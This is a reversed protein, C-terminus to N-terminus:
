YHQCGPQCTYNLTAWTTGRFEPVWPANSGVRPRSIPVQGHGRLQECTRSSDFKLNFHHTRVKIPLMIYLPGVCDRNRLVARRNQQCFLQGWFGLQNNAVQLGALFSDNSDDPVDTLVRSSM